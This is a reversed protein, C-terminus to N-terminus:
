YDRSLLAAPQGYQQQPPLQQGYQQQHRPQQDYRQQTTPSHDYWTGPWQQPTPKVMSFTPRPKVTSPRQQQQQQRQVGPKVTVAVTATHWSTRYDGGNNQMSNDGYQGGYSATQNGSVVMAGPPPAAAMMPAKMIEKDKTKSTKEYLIVTTRWHYYWRALL